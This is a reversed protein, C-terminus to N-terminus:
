SSAATAFVREGGGGGGGLKGSGSGGSGGGLKGGGGGGGGGGGMIGMSTGAGEWGLGGNTLAGELCFSGGRGELLGASGVVTCVM